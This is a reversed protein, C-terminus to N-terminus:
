NKWLLIMLLALLRVYVNVLEQLISNAKQVAVSTVQLVAVRKVMDSKPPPPPCLGLPNRHMVRFRNETLPEFKMVKGLIKHSIKQNTNRLCKGLVSELKKYNKYKANLIGHLCYKRLLKPWFLPYWPSKCNNETLNM